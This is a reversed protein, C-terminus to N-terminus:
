AVFVSRQAGAPTNLLEARIQGTLPDVATARPTLAPGTGILLATSGNLDAAGVRAGGEFVSPYALYSATQALNSGDFVKVHGGSSGFGSGTVLDARGDGDLDIAAVYVGGAFGNYALFSALESRDKGSFAKVHDAGAGAGTVIDAFGDGNVDGTAVRAGGTFGAGYALFSQLLVNDQGGFVKVHPTAGADASVILDDRGDANVDGAAVFVGGGFGDFALFSLREAGTAGDFVKVHGGSTGPGAGTVIDTIGDGNVDGTAIRVEGAFGAYPVFTTVAGTLPNRVTVTTVAGPAVTAFAAPRPALENATQAVAIDFADTDTFEGDSSTVTVTAGGVFGPTPTFAAGALAANVAALPGSLTVAATGNGTVSAGAVPVVTLTGTTAALTVSLPAPGADVDFVSLGNGTAASFTLPAAKTTAQAQAEPVTNVPADNVARVTITVAVAASVENAANRVRYRFSDTGNFDANPTYSFTGDPSLTVTGGVPGAGFLEATAGPAANDNGLVSSVSPLPADEDTTATDATAAPLDDDTVTVTVQQTGSEIGGSVSAVSVVVTEDNEDATDDAGALTVFGSTSGAPIAIRTGSATFDAGSATGTFGLTVVVPFASPNSLTATVTAAGGSETLPGGALSLTVTPLPDDNTVTVLALGGAVTAHVPASLNVAFSEDDEFTADGSVSLTVTKSTEGPAFTLAGSAAAYDAGATATGDATTYTVSVAQGSPASLSVTLTVNTGGANGEALTVGGVSLAPVPDDNTITGTGTGTGITANVPNSLVVTLTEDAENATDGNVLVTVTKSTEGPAFTLTGSAATYDAATATGDATAYGVTVASASAASLTVTFTLARTGSDGETVSPSNVALVSLPDNDLITYVHTVQGRATGNTVTAIGLVITENPEVADDDTVAITLTQATAGAPFTVGAPFSTTFDAWPVASGGTRTVQVTTAVNALVYQAGTRTLGVAAGASEPGSSTAATFGVGAGEAFRRLYTDSTGAAGSDFLIVFDGAASIGGVANDEAADNNAATPSVAREPVVVGGSSDYVKFYVDTGAPDLDGETGTWTVLFTGGATADIHPNIQNGTTTANVRFEGGFAGGGVQFRRMVVATGSGDINDSYWVVNFNGGADMAIDPRQQNGATVTNVLFEASTAPTGNRGMQRLFIGFDSTSASDRGPSQWVVVYNGAGDIAVAPEAQSGFANNVVSEGGVAAPAGSGGTTIGAYSQAYIDAIPAGSQFAIVFQGAANAAVDPERQQGATTTNVRFEAADLATGDALFRRAYVGAQAASDGPDQGFSQWAIVFNGASDAGISPAQQDNATVTNVAVPGQVLQWNADFRKFYIGGGADDPAEYTVVFGSGDARVALDGGRDVGGTVSVPVDTAELGILAPVDRGELRVLRLAVAARPRSRTRPRGLLKSIWPPM